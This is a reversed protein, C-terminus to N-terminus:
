NRCAHVPTLKLEEIDAGGEHSADKNGQPEITQRIKKLVSRQRFL